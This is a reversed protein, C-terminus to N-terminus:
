RLLDALAESPLPLPRRWLWDIQLRFGPVARSTYIGSADIEAAHYRGDAELQFFRADKVRPDVIWYEPVGAAEYEDYKQRQDRRVSEPSIVEVVLDAPGAIYTPTIRDRHAASVFLVDPERGTRRAPLRMLFPPQFVEGLGHQAVFAWLVFYLFGAVRQHEDTAPSMEIIEGDVWEVRWDDPAWALFDDWSVPAPPPPVYDPSQRRLALLDEPSLDSAPTASSHRHVTM